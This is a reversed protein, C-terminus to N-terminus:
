QGLDIDGLRHKGQYKIPRTVFIGAKGVKVNGDAKLLIEKESLEHLNMKLITQLSVNGSLPLSFEANKSVVISSDQVFKGLYVTDLYIDAAAERVTVNFNNPNFYTASFGITADQLGLNKLRFNEVRRFEPDKVKACGLSTFLVM